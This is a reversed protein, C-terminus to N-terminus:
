RVFHEKFKVVVLLSRLINSFRELYAFVKM